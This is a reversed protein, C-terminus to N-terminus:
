KENLGNPTITNLQRIWKREMSKRQTPTWTPNNELIVVRLSSWGHQIFHKIVLRHKNQKKLINYKYQYLRTAITNGTEGVYRRKCTSCHILYICNKIQPKSPTDIRYHQSSHTNNIWKMKHLTKMNNKPKNKTLPEIKAQVLYDQLNKRRRYASILKHNQLVQTNETEQNFNNKIRRMFNTTAQSFDMIIPLLPTKKTEPRRTHYKKLIKRLFSRSYGRSTLAAFLTKTAEEFDEKRNCIRHFRLLQSKVIGEYTHKPHYSNKHLLAHTDTPKFYVKTDLIGTTNFQPGKYTTIDLFNVTHTHIEAKLQISKSQKNLTNIFTEFDQETSTWVGWIDDLFRFYHLPKKPVAKLAKDEWDAMFINAYAPAFKKGMATGKIQLYLEGNYEFDNRTLNIELLQLLEKDPRKGDPNQALKEEITKIGEKIEINTYLSNVDMTFLLAEKPIILKRIKDIFDYTDKIYSPHTISLPNLFFDLYEATYYSESDCDSVIPRGPPIQFPKKWEKPNKHIKPLTYFRRPRPPDKGILYKKQKANIFKKRQLEEIITRIQTATEIYLPKKLPIYYEKDALQRHCEWLYQFRDQIVIASGKDAPKIIIHKNNYLSKLAKIEENTLNPKPTNIKFKNRFDTLDKQIIQNILKPIKENTPIWNSKPTFPQIKSSSNNNDHKNNNKEFYAALKIKRHYEHLDARTRWRINRNSQWTPAYSLGKQLLARQAQTPKFSRSLNIVTKDDDGDQLLLNEPFTLKGAEDLPLPHERSNNKDM